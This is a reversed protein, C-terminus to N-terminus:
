PSSMSTGNMRLYGPAVHNEIPAIIDLTTDVPVSAVIGRGPALVEPKAFGDGTTGRASWTAEVDDAAGPTLNSDSSGVTLVFPDNAPAFDM